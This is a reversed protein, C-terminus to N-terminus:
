DHKSGHYESPFVVSSTVETPRPRNCGYITLKWEINHFTSMAIRLWDAITQLRFTAVFIRAALVLLAAM